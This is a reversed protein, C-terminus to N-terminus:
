HGSFLETGKSDLEWTGTSDLRWAGPSALGLGTGTINYKQGCTEYPTSLLEWPEQLWLSCSRRVLGWKGRGPIWPHWSKLWSPFCSFTKKQRFCKNSLCLKTIGATGACPGPLEGACLGQPPRM